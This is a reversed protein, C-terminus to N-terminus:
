RHEHLCSVMGFFPAFSPALNDIQGSMSRTHTHTDRRPRPAPRATPPPFRRQIPSDICTLHPRSDQMSSMAPRASRARGDMSLWCHGGASASAAARRSWVTWGAFRVDARMAEGERRESEASARVRMAGEWGDGVCSGRVGRQPSLM